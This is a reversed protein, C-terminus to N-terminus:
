NLQLGEEELTSILDGHKITKALEVIDCSLSRDKDMYPSQKRVLELVKALHKNPNLPKLLELGQCAALLEIALIHSVNENIKRAKHCAIPGMSVHDEKDCSTPITDVSAPHCLIKNESALAAATVHPIMYGSNLGEDKMIFAPLGSMQPNILKEIRRESISGFESIAIALFDMAFALAQGHFNGGSLIEGEEFVLPNDTESNLERNIIQEVFKLVDYSAGHVQPACRFSYPDQVKDCDKHSELIEDDASFLNRLNEAVKRQGEQKRVRHIREDFPTSSGKFASLSLALIIDSSKQLTTAEHLAYSALTAMFSTGNILSLGEKAKPNYPKIELHKMLEKTSAEKGKYSSNGEGIFGLALHALPALDGSAGVSGQEFIHPTLGKKTCEMMFKILETSIGSHGQAFNHARLFMLSTVIDDDVKKGVGAAHSRILNLQLEELQDHPIKVHSLYGFGTNIGYYSKSDSLIKEVHGRSKKIKMLSETPLHLERSTKPFNVLTKYDLTDTGLSFLSM